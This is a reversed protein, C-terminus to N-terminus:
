RYSYLSTCLDTWIRIRIRFRLYTPLYTPLPHTPLYIQPSIRRLSFTVTHWPDFKQDARSTLPAITSQSIHCFLHVGVIFHCEDSKASVQFRYRNGKLTFHCKRKKNQKIVLGLLSFYLDDCFSTIGRYSRQYRVEGVDSVSIKNSDGRCRGNGAHCIAAPKKGTTAQSYLLKNRQSCDNRPDTTKM